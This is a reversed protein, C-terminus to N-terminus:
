KDPAWTPDAPTSIIMCNEKLLMAMDYCFKKIEWKDRQEEPMARWEEIRASPANWMPVMEAAELLNVCYEAAELYEDTTHVVPRHQAAKKDMMLEEVRRIATYAHGERNPNALVRGASRKRFFGFLAAIAAPDRITGDEYILGHVDGWGWNAIVLNFMYWGMNYRHCFELEVDYPDARCVCGAESQIMQKGFRVSQEHAWAYADGIEKRTPLYDHFSLVDVWDATIENYDTIVHGITIPTETDYKKVTKCLREVFAWIEQLRGQKTAEDPAEGVWDTCGPENIIDWMLLGPEGRLTDTMDRVYEEITVWEEETYAAKEMGNGNWLIPMTSVGYKWCESVYYKLRACYSERDQLWASNENVPPALWIRTSNLQLRNMFGMDRKLLEPDSVLRHNVGRLKSYDQLQM